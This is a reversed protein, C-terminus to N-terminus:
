GQSADPFIVLGAHLYRRSIRGRCTTLSSGTLLPSPSGAVGRSSTRAGIQDSKSISGAGVVGPVRVLGAKPNAGADDRVRRKRRHTDPAAGNQFDQTRTLPPRRQQFATEQNRHPSVLSKPGSCDDLVSSFECVCCQVAGCCEAVWLYPSRQSLSTPDGGRASISSGAM